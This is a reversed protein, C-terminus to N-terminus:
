AGLQVCDSTRHKGGCLLCKPPILEVRAIVAELEAAASTAQARRLRQVLTKAEGVTMRMLITHNQATLQPM